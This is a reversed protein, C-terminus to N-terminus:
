GETLTFLRRQEEDSFQRKPDVESFRMSSHDGSAERVVLESLLLETGRFELSTVARGLAANRPKMTLSWSPGDTQFRLEFLEELGARNGQLLFSFGRVLAGVAPHADVDIHRLKKGEKITLRSGDLLIASVEPQDIYRVLKGNPLFYVRGSSELPTDLLTIHKEEAFKASVGPRRTM